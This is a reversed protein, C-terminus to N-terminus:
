RESLVGEVAEQLADAVEDVQSTTLLNHFPLALTRRAISVTTPLEGSGCSVCLRMYNQLHIPSFYCRVPIHRKKLYEIVTSRDIAKDL